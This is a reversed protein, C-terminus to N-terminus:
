GELYCNIVSLFRFLFESFDIDYLKSAHELSFEAVKGTCELIMQGLTAKDM